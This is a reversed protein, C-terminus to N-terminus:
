EARPKKAQEGHDQSGQAYEAQDNMGAGPAYLFNGHSFCQAGADLKDDMQEGGIVYDHYEYLREENCGGDGALIRIRVLSGDVTLWRSDV